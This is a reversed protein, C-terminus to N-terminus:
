RDHLADILDNDSLKKLDSKFEVTLTEAEPVTRMSDGGIFQNYRMKHTKDIMM